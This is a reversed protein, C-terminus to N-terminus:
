IKKFCKKITLFEPYKEPKTLFELKGPNKIMDYLPQFRLIGLEPIEKPRLKIIEPIKEYYSNKEFEVSKGDASELLYYAAGRLNEFTEYENEFERSVWNALVLEESGPNTSVFGFGPPMVVKEGEEAEVLYIEEIIRPNKKHPRQILWWARGSLVEFIEPYNKPHYHGFTKALERGIKKPYLTTQDYRIKLKKILAEDGKAAIGREVKYIVRKEDFMGPQYLVPSLEKITRESFKGSM